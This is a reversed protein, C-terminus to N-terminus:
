GSSPQWAERGPCAPALCQKACAVVVAPRFATCWVVDLPREAPDLQFEALVERGLVPCTFSRTRTSVQRRSRGLVKWLLFALVLGNMLLIALLVYSGAADDPVVGTSGDETIVADVFHRM